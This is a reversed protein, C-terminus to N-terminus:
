RKDGSTPIQRLFSQRYSRHSLWAMLPLIGWGVVPIWQLFMLFFRATKLLLRMWFCQFRPLFRRYPAVLQIRYCLLGAVFGLVPVLGLLSIALMTKKFRQRIYNDYEQMEGETDFIRFGCAPCAQQVQREHLRTACEPCRKKELLRFFHTEKAAPSKPKSTGLASVDCPSPNPQKCQPCSRACPYMKAQCAGCEVMGQEERWECAKRLAFVAAMALGLLVLMLIPFLFLLLLSFLVWGDECWGLLRQLSLSDDPDADVLVELLEQRVSALFYVTCGALTALLANGSFSAQQIAKVTKLDGASLVGVTTLLIMGSKIWHDVEDMMQRIDADKTAWCELISLIGLIALSADSTFWCIFPEQPILGIGACGKILPGFRLMLATFFAPLFARSPFVGTAGVTYIIGSINM